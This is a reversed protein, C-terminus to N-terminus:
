RHLFRSDACRCSRQDESFVSSVHHQRSATWIRQFRRGLPFDGTHTPLRKGDRRIYGSRIGAVCQDAFATSSNPRTSMRMLQAPPASVLDIM